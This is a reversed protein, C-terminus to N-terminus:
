VAVTPRPAADGAAPAPHDPLPVANAAAQIEDRIKRAVLNKWPTRPLTRVMLIRLAIKWKSGVTMEKVFGEAMRQNREVGPRMHAEYRAFAVAHDGGARAPEAAPVYAGTPHARIEDLVGM